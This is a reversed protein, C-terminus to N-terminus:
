LWEFVWNLESQWHEDARETGVANRLVVDYVYLIAFCDKLYKRLRDRPQKQVEDAGDALPDIAVMDGELTGKRRGAAWSENVGLSFWFHRHPINQAPFDYNELAHNCLFSLFNDVSLLPVREAARSEVAEILNLYIYMQLAVSAVLDLGFAHGWHLGRLNSLPVENALRVLATLAERRIPKDDATAAVIVLMKAADALNADATTYCLEYDSDPDKARRKWYELDQHSAKLPNHLASNDEHPELGFHREAFYLVDDSFLKGNVPASHIKMSETDSFERITTLFVRNFHGIVAQQEPLGLATLSYNGEQEAPTLSFHPAILHWPIKHDLHM